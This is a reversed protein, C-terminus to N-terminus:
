PFRRTVPNAGTGFPAAGAGAVSVQVASPAGARVTVGAPFAQETGVAPIGEYLVQGSSATVRVWSRGSFRLTVGGQPAAESPATASSPTAPAAGAGVPASPRTNAPSTTAPSATTSTANTSSGPAGATGVPPQASAPPSTPATAAPGPAAGPQLQVNVTRSQSLDLNQKAPVYGSLELRLEGRDRAELPFDRMPTEGLLRNDLYIRAGSPKSAVSLRVQQESSLPVSAAQEAIPAEPRAQWMAYAGWGLAGAVILGSLLAAIAGLPVQPGRPVNRRQLVSAIEPRHPVARDFETLLSSVDVGLESAYRQLYSRAFPREPLAAFEGEELARLYDARIKTHAAIDQLSRGADERAQRLSDGLTSHRM